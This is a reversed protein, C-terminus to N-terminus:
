KRRYRLRTETPRVAGLAFNVGPAPDLLELKLRQFLLATIIIMENNAFNMGACKHGGGGFGILSFRHQADEARGPAYRLPDFKEPDRFLEPQRHAVAASVMIFTDKPIVYDGVQIDQEAVRMLVDASPHLREVERVAWAIHQLSRLTKSDLAAGPPLNQRIEEEVLGLYESNRTIEIITWAAQGATTEHSAFMFGRLLDVITRDDAPQGSTFRTNVFDQLFDDYREPHQRREQIIPLLLTRM